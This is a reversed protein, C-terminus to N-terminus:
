GISPRVARVSVFEVLGGCVVSHLVSHCELQDEAGDDRGDRATIIM